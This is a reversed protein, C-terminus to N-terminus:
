PRSARVRAESRAMRPHPRSEVPTVWNWTSGGSRGDLVVDAIDKWRLLADLLDEDGASDSDLSFVTALCERTQGFRHVRDLAQDFDARTSPIEAFVVHSAATLTLSLNSVNVQGIFFQIEPRTQFSRVTIAAYASNDGNHEVVRRGRSRLAAALQTLVLDRHFGIVVVKHEPPLALLYDLVAQRKARAAHKTVASKIKHLWEELKRAKEVEHARQAARLKRSLVRASRARAAFWDRDEAETLPVTIKEFRRGPLGVVDDKPTRVLVTERLRRHLAELNRPAVNQVVRGDATVIRPEGNDTVEEYYQNIFTDRDPWAVPDLFNLTTFIEEIRNKLPTGALVLAKSAPIPPYARCKWVGGHILVTRRRSPEKTAQGEDLIVLDWRRRRLDDAFRELLEYNMALWGIEFDFFPQDPLVRVVGPRPHWDDIERLWDPLASKPCV